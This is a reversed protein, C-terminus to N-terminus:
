ASGARVWRCARAELMDLVLYLALGVLSMAVVASYMERYSLSQWTDMIYYGLGSRTAFSEAIYLVAIATGVSLRVATITAPLCAPFYVYRVLGWVGAGLSRVSLLLEPRIAAAADKVVVLVQYFLILFILAIKSTDGIGLFLLVIPLLVVKPVPYTVYILPDAWRRVAANQGMLLGLPAGAAVALATGLFIRWLSVLVHWGLGEGMGTALAWLVEHPPPLITSQMVLAAIQWLALVGVLGAALEKGRM